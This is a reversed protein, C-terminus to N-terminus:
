YSATVKLNGAARVDGMIICCNMLPLNTQPGTAAGAVLVMAKQKWKDNNHNTSPCITKESGLVEHIDVLQVTVSSYEWDGRGKKTEISQNISQTHTLMHTHTHPYRCIHMHEPLWLEKRKLSSRVWNGKVVMHILSLRRWNGGTVRMERRQVSSMLSGSPRTMGLPAQETEKSATASNAPTEPWAQQPHLTGTIPFVGPYTNSQSHHPHRLKM